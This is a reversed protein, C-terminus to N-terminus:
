PGDGPMGAIRPLLAGLVSVDGTIAREALRSELMETLERLEKEERVRATIDSGVGCVAYITGNLDRLPSKFSIYTHPGDRHPLIEEVEMAVGSEIIQRDLRHLAAAVDDPFIDRDSRGRLDEGHKGFLRQFHQNVLLYRGHIDKVHIIAGSSDIISKLLSQTTLLEATREEVRRELHRRLGSLSLHTKVRAVVESQDIPKVVYDVGGVAFAHEKNWSADMASIFIVPTDRFREDAMIQRCVEYGDMDPMKVDLLVIDPVFKEIFQLAIKGSNAVHVKYGRKALIRKLLQLNDQMDDVVLVKAAPQTTIATNV